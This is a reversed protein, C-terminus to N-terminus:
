ALLCQLYTTRVLVLTVCGLMSLLWSSRDGVVCAIHKSHDVGRLLSSGICAFISSLYHASSYSSCLRADFAVLLEQQRWSRFCHAM